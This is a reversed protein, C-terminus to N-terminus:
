ESNENPAKTPKKQKKKKQKLAEPAPAPIANRKTSVVKRQIPIKPKRKEQGPKPTSFFNMVATVASEEIGMAQQVPDWELMRVGDAEIFGNQYSLHASKFWTILPIVLKDNIRVNKYFGPGFCLQSSPRIDRQTRTTVEYVPNSM